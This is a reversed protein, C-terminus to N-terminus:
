SPSDHRSRQRKRRDPHQLASRHFGDGGQQGAYPSLFGGARACQRLLRPPQKAVMRRGTSDGATRSAAGGLHRGPGRSEPRGICAGRNTSRDRGHLLGYGRSRLRAGAAVAGEIAACAVSRGMRFDRHAPKDAIMFARLQAENLHEVCITPVEALGLFQAALIRGHGAIVNGKGDTIVPVLFGFSNISRAIQRVQRPSHIRPNFGDLTLDAIRRYIVKIAAKSRDQNRSKRDKIMMSVEGEM